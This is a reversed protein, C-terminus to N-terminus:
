EAVEGPPRQRRCAPCLDEDLGDGAVRWGATRAAVFPDTRQDVAPSPRLCRDCLLRRIGDCFDIV